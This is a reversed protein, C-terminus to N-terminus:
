SSVEHKHGCGQCIAVTRYKHIMKGTQKKAGMILWLGFTCVVLILRALKYLIGMRKQRIKTSVRESSFSMEDNDCQQCVM